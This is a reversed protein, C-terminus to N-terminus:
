IQKLLGLKMEFCFYTFYKVQPVNKIESVPEGTDVLDKTLDAKPTTEMM